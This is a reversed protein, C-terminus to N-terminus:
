NKKEFCTMILVTKLFNVEPNLFDRVSEGSIFAM